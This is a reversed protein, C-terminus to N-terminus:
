EAPGTEKGDDGKGFPIYFLRVRKGSSDSQYQFLGFLLSCKRSDSSTDRRYLNWLFSQSSAGTEANHESRWISWLPSYNREISKSGPLLPELLAGIQLRQDGEFTRKYTFLPWLDTRRATEETDLNRENVGSYLFFLIRTRERFAPPATLRNYKYIPWLYFDSRLTPNESQSFLPWVRSTNKGEGRAFSVLPWPAGWERYNKERDETYTFFPWLYTSSDRNPSRLVSYLPLLVRQRQPNETGLETHNHFFIPWLVFLKRHGGITIVEDFRNTQIYSDKREWGVLPWVQWGHLQEGRRLHFIPYLYNDTVVDRKRSQGYIPFLVFRIEDRFLRNKLHGYLPVLAFYNQEPDNSTQQFYLPFITFRSKEVDGQYEGGAFSFLQLIQFRYDEGYQDYTLLPYLLDFERSRIVSDGTTSWLPPMAWLENDEWEEYRFLPGAAEVARGPKLTLEVEDFLFGANFFDQSLV